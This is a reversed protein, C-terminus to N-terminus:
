RPRAHHCICTAAVSSGFSTYLGSGVTSSDESLLKVSEELWIRTHDWKASLFMSGLNECTYVCFSM